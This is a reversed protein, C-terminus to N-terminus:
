WQIQRIQRGFQLGGGSANRINPLLDVCCTCQYDRVSTEREFFNDYVHRKLLDLSLFVDIFACYEGILHM